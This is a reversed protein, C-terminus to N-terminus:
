GEDAPLRGLLEMLEDWLVPDMSDRPPLKDRATDGVDDEADTRAGASLLLEIMARDAHHAAHGLATWSWQGGWEDITKAAGHKLLLKALELAKGQAALRLPSEGDSRRVNPDAGSELLVQAADWTDLGQSDSASLIPTEHHNLDWANPDAGFDLLLEVSELPGGVGIRGIAVHLPRWGEENPANADAGQKLLYRVLEHDHNEIAAFLRETQSAM